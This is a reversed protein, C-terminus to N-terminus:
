EEKVPADDSKESSEKAESEKASEEEEKPTEM